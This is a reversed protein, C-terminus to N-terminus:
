TCIRISAQSPLKRSSWAKQAALLNEPQQKWRLKMLCRLPNSASRDPANQNLWSSKLMSEIDVRDAEQEAAIRALNRAKQGKFLEQLELSDLSSSQKKSLLFLAFWFPHLHVQSRLSLLMVLDRPAADQHRAFMQENLIQPVLWLWHRKGASQGPIQAVPTIDCVKLMRLFAVLTQVQQPPRM